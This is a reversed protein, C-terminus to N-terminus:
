KNQALYQEWTLSKVKDENANIAMHPMGNVDALWHITGISSIEKEVMYAIYLTLDHQYIMRAAWRLRRSMLSVQQRTNPRHTAGSMPLWNAYKQDYHWPASRQVKIKTRGGRSRAGRTHKKGTLGVGSEAYLAGLTTRFDIFPSPAGQIMRVPQSSAIEFSRGTSYWYQGKSKIVHGPVGKDKQERLKSEDYWSWNNVVHSKGSADTYRYRKSRIWVSNSKTGDWMHQMRYSDHLQKSSQMAWNKITQEFNLVLGTYYKDGPKLGAM